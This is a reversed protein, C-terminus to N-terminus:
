TALTRAGYCYQQAKHPPEAAPGSRSDPDEACVTRTAGGNQARNKREVTGAVYAQLCKEPLSIIHIM